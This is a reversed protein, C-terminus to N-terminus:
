TISSAYGIDAYLFCVDTKLCFRIFIHVVDVLIIYANANGREEVIM